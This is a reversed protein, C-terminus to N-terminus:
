SSMFNYIVRRLSVSIINYLSQRERIGEARRKAMTENYLTLAEEMVHAQALLRSRKKGSPHSLFYNTMESEGSIFGLKEYFTPAVRPDYGASAMLLLGIYDAELEHGDEGSVAVLVFVRIILKEITYVVHQAVVHGVEHAVMTAIEADIKFYELMGTFVVIKGTPICCANVEPNDVVMVEWEFKHVYHRKAKKGADLEAEDRVTRKLAEIIDNFILSVRVSHPHTPSLIRWDYEHELEKFFM